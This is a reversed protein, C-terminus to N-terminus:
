NNISENIRGLISLSNEYHGFKGGIKFTFDADIDELHDYDFNELKNTKQLYTALPQL